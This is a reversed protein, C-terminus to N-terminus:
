SSRTSFVSALQISAAALLQRDSERRGAAEGRRDDAASSHELNWNFLLDAYFQAIKDAITLRTKQREQHKWFRHQVWGTTLAGLLSGVLIALAGIFTVVTISM